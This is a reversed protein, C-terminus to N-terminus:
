QEEGSPVTGGSTARRHGFIENLTQQEKPTLKQGTQLIEEHKRDKAMEEQRQQEQKRQLEAVQRAYEAKRKEQEQQATLRRQQRRNASRYTSYNIPVLILWLIGVGYSGQILWAIGGFLMLAALFLSGRQLLKDMRTAYKEIDGLSRTKAMHATYCLVHPLAVDKMM